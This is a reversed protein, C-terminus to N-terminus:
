TPNAGEPPALRTVFGVGSSKKCSKQCVLLLRRELAVPTSLNTVFVEASHRPKKNGLLLLPRDKRVSSLEAINSLIRRLTQLIGFQLASGLPHIPDLQASSARSAACAARPEVGVGESNKGKVDLSFPALNNVTSLQIGDPIQTYFVGSFIRLKKNGSFSFLPRDKLFGEGASRAVEGRPLPSSIHNGARISM